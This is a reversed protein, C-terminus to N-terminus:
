LPLSPPELELLLSSSKRASNRLLPNASNMKSLPSPTVSTLHTQLHFM